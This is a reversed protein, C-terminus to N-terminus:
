LSGSGHYVLLSPPMTPSVTDARCIYEPYPVSPRGMQNKAERTKCGEASFSDYLHPVAPINYAAIHQHQWISWFGSEPAPSDQRM